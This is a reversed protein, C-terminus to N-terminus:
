KYEFVHFVFEGAQFTAIYEGAEDPMPNGTGYIAITRIETSPMMEEDVLAWLCAVGRQIQVTLIKAGVPLKLNQQDADKLPYKWIRM